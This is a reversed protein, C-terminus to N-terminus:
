GMASHRRRRNYFEEVYCSVERKSEGRTALLMRQLLECEMTAFLSEAMANDYWSGPDAISQVVRKRLAGHVTAGDVGHGPGFPVGGGSDGADAGGDGAGVAGSGSDVAGRVDGVIGRPDGLVAPQAPPAGVGTAAVRSVRQRFARAAPVDARGSVRGPGSKRVRVNQRCRFLEKLSSPRAKQWSRGSRLGDQRLGADSKAQRVWRRVSDASIGFEKAIGATTLGGLQALQVVQARFEKPYPKM